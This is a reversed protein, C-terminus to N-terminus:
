YFCAVSTNTVFHVKPVELLLLQKHWHTMMYKSWTTRHHQLQDHHLHSSCSFMCYERKFPLITPIFYCLIFTSVVLSTRWCLVSTYYTVCYMGVSAKTCTYKLQRIGFSINCNDKDFVPGSTVDVVLSCCHKCLWSCHFM